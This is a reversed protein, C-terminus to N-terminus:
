RPVRDKKVIQERAGSSLSGSWLRSRKIQCGTWILLPRALVKLLRLLEDLKLRISRSDRNQAHQILFVILFTLVSTGTNAIAAM